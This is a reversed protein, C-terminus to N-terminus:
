EMSDDTEDEKERGGEYISKAVKKPKISYSSGFSANMRECWDALNELISEQNINIEDNNANIEDGQMREPKEKLNDVGLFTLVEKEIHDKREELKDLLYPVGTNMIDISDMEDVGIVIDHAGLMMRKVLERLKRENNQTGKAAMSLNQERANTRLAMEVDVLDDVWPKVAQEIPILTPLAHGIVIQGKGLTGKLNVSDTERIAASIFNDSMLTIPQADTPSGYLNLGVGAVRTFYIGTSTKVAGIKGEEWLCRCVFRKEELRFGGWELSSMFLNMFRTKFWLSLEKRERLIDTIEKTLNKNESM